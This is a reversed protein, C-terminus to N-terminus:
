RLEDFKQLCKYKIKMTKNFPRFYISMKIIISQQKSSKSDALNHITEAYLKNHLSFKWAIYVKSVHETFNLESSFCVFSTKVM